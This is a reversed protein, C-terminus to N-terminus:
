NYLNIEPSEIRSWQELYRHRHWVTKIVIPKYYVKFDPLTIGVATNKKGLVSEANWPRKHHWVFKLIKKRNRHFIMAIKISIANIRYNAKPLIFIKVFKNKHDVFVCFRELTKNNETYLDKVEKTLNMYFNFCNRFLFYDLFM